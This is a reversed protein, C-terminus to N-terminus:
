KSRRSRQHSLTERRRRARQSSSYSYSYSHTDFVSLLAVFSFDEGERGKIYYRNLTESGFFYFGLYDKQTNRLFYVLWYVITAILFNIAYMLTLHQSEFLFNHLLYSGFLVVIMIYSVQSLNIWRWPKKITKKVCCKEVLNKKCCFFQCLKKKM